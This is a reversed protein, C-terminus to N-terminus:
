QFSRFCESRSTSTTAPTVTLAHTNDSSGSFGAAGNYAATITYTAAATGAPIAFTASAAGGAVTGSTVPVGITTAGQSVTFTVTGANVTGAGSTVNASLTVNQSSASFVASANTAATTTASAGVILTHTADSSVNLNTTGSYTATITYSGSATSAPLVFTASAAGSVVTGSTVPTGITTAGQSVTFTVTGTNVTGAGSTVNASLTVNQSTTSFAASANAATTTTAAPSVTLIHTNDSSTTLSATGNYVATITYPGAATGGTLAFTASAAGGSVTGSTVPAGITTAGQSVTFTVTGASVTGASSTVNASLTVNQGSASFVTSANAAATTTAAPTVTLSHTNDSSGSFGSAGNYAATITYSGAATNAPLIFTASAIGGSVTGSTVPTGITTAGQSVTFTVTGANVTGGTSTVTASLTVNQSSTKFAASANTGATTTPSTTGGGSAPKFAAFAAGWADSTGLTTTASTSGPAGQIKDEVMLKSNPAAPVLQEITFGSGRTFNEADATVVEGLILDGTGMTSASGSNPATSSGMNSDAIDLSFSTAVGSYELIAFRLTNNAISNAVTVTNAGGAINEAYFIAFTEGNPVDLTENAQVAKQFTNHNSDSVTFVQGSKGARIVVAIFNGPTNSGPFALSSSSTTGGDKGAHQILVISTMAALNTLSFNAPTSVGPATAAVIYPGGATGNATFISSTAVGSANTTATTIGGAFTGSAGSAPPTFTVIVGGVPNNGVDVVTAVLPAGFATSVTASQPTGSTVTITAPLGVTNTLAFNAPSSAGSVSATVTYTGVKSNASFTPSSAIGSANTMATTTTLGGSFTGSAGSSPASFTVTAGVVPNSSADKVTVVLLGGFAMQIVASQPTGSTATVTIAPPTTAAAKFAAFAAGWPDSTGITANAFIPGASSQVTDEVMLKTNPAAPTRERITFGSGATPTVGDATVMEGLILDGSAATTASGSNPATSSGMNAATTDLSLSTAVGSYEFIAFRLTNNAISNAVTITNAGGAINEAYFIAFTEGNPVDLTENAQIAKQFTDRSSDSVTFVQGSKGARIAVAIFNGATNSSTFALTSSSTIGADKSSHQVLTITQAHLHTGSLLLIPVLALPRCLVKRIASVVFACASTLM